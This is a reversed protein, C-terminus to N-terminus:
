HQARSALSAPPFVSPFVITASLFAISSVHGGPRYSQAGNHFENGSSWMGDSDHGTPSFLNLNQPNHGMTPSPPLNFDGAGMGGDAATNIEGTLIKLAKSKMTPHTKLQNLLTYVLNPHEVMKKITSPWPCSVWFENNNGPASSHEDAHSADSANGSPDSGSKSSRAAVQIYLNETNSSTPNGHFFSTDLSLGGGGESLGAHGGDQGVHVSRSEGQMGM